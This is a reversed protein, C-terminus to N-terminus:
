PAVLRALDALGYTPLAAALAPAPLQVLLPRRAPDLWRLLLRLDEEAMATCGATPAGPASHLHIFICSGAGPRPRDMNYRVVILYRYLDDGRRLVEASAWPPGGDGPQPPAKLLQNYAPAAPDDVCRDEATMAHYALRTGPPAAAAYGWADGLALAGAPARGDGERKRPGPLPPAPAGEDSRWALGARGLSVPIPAGVPRFRQPGLGGAGGADRTREFRRLTGIPSDWSPSVVLLIQGPAAAPSAGSAPPAAGRRAGDAPLASALGVLGVLWVELALWIELAAVAAVIRSLSRRRPAHVHNM